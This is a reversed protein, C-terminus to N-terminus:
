VQPMQTHPQIAFSLLALVAQLVTLVGLLAEVVAALTQQGLPEQMVVAALAALVLRQEV